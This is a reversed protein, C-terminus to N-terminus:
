FSYSYTLLAVSYSGDETSGFERYNNVEYGLSILSSPTFYYGVKMGYGSKLVDKTNFVTNGGDKVGSIMQGGYFKANVFFSKYYLTDQVEYSYYNNKLYDSTNIWNAQIHFNNRTNLNIAKSFTFSPSVQLIGISKAVNLDDFGDKYTSYFTEIAYSYKDYGDWRNEGFTLIVTNGDGLDVDTTNVHHLGLKFFYKEAYLSYAVTIDDQSLDSAATNKYKINTKAYDLEFLYDLNGYSFYMGAITGNDKTSKTPSSDYNLKAAYPLLTTVEAFLTGTLLLTSLLVKNHLKM